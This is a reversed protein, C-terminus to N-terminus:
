PSAESSPEQSPLGPPKGGPSGSRYINSKSSNLNVAEEPEPPEGPGADRLPSSKPKDAPVGEDGVAIGAQSAGGRGAAEEEVQKPGAKKGGIEGEPKEGM